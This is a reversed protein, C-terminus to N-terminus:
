DFMTIKHCHRCRFELKGKAVAAEFLTTEMRALVENCLFITPDTRSKPRTGTCILRIWTTTPEAVARVM